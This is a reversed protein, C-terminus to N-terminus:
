ANFKGEALDNADIRPLTLSDDKDLNAIGM